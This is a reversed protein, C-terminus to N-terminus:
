ECQGDFGRTAGGIHADLVCVGAEAQIGVAEGPWADQGERIHDTEYLMIHGGASCVGSTVARVRCRGRCQRGRLLISRIIWRQRCWRGSSHMEFEHLRKHASTAGAAQLVQAAQDDVTQCDVHVAQGQRPAHGIVESLIRELESVARRGRLSM